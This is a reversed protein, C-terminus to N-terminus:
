YAIGRYRYDAKSDGNQRTVTQAYIRDAIERYENPIAYLRGDVEMTYCPDEEIYVPKMVKYLQMLEDSYYVVYHQLSHNFSDARGFINVTNSFNAYDDPTNLGIYLNDVDNINRLCEELFEDSLSYLFGYESLLSMTENYYSNIDFTYYVTRIQFEKEADSRLIQEATLANIDNELAEGLRTYFAKDPYHVPNRYNMLGLYGVNFRPVTARFNYPVDEYYYEDDRSVAERNAEIYRDYEGAVAERIYAAKQSKYEDSVEINSIYEVAEYPISDYCRVMRTGNKLVYCISFDSNDVLTTDMTGYNYKKVKEGYEVFEEHAKIVNEINEPTELRISKLAEQARKEDNNFYRFYQSLGNNDLGQSGIYVRSVSIASPVKAELGFCGTTEIVFLVALLGTLTAAYRLIGHWIKKFGRRTIVELTMYFIFSIIIIGTMQGDIYGIFSILSVAAITILIYYFGKFVFPKSVQEAKRKMYLFYAGLLMLATCVIFGILWTHLPVCYFDGYEIYSINDILYVLQVIAGAPSTWGILAMAKDECYIGNLNEFCIMFTLLIFLPISANLIINYFISEFMTGCCVMVLITLTYLMIMTFIGVIFCYGFGATFDSFFDCVEAVTREGYAGYLMFTKGEMNVNGYLLLLWTIVSVAIFPLVYSIIGSIYDSIFRQRRTMPQSLCM